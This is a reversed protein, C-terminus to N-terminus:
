NRAREVEVVEVDMDVAVEVRPAYYSSVDDGDLLEEVGVEVMMQVELKQSIVFKISIKHPDDFIGGHFWDVLLKELKNHKKKGVSTQM